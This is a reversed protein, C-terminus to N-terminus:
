RMKIRAELLVLAFLTGGAIRYDLFLLFIFAIFGAATIVGGLFADSRIRFFGGVLLLLSFAALVLNLFHTM